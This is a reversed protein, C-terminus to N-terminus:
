LGKDLDLSAVTGVAEMLQKESKPSITFSHRPNVQGRFIGGSTWIEVLNPNGPIPNKLFATGGWTALLRLAVERSKVSLTLPQQILVEVEESLNDALFSSVDSDEGLNPTFFHEM